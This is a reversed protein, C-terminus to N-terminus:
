ADSDEREINKSYMNHPIMEGMEEIAAALQPNTEVGLEKCRDHTGCVDLARLALLMEPSFTMKMEGIKNATM